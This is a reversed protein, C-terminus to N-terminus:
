LREMEFVAGHHPSDHNPRAPQIAADCRIPKGDPMALGHPDASGPQKGIWLREPLANPGLATRLVIRSRARRRPIAPRAAPQATAAGALVLGTRASLGAWRFDRKRLFM